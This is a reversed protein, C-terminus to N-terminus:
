ETFPQEPSFLICNVGVLSSFLPVHSLLALLPLQLTLNNHILSSNTTSVDLLCVQLGLLPPQPLFIEHKLEAQAM